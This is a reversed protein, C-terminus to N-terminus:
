SGGGSSRGFVRALHLAQGTLPAEAPRPSPTEAFPAGKPKASPAKGAPAPAAPPASASGAAAAGDTPATRFIARAERATQDFWEKLYEPTRYREPAQQYLRQETELAVQRLLQPKVSKLDPYQTFFAAELAQLQMQQQQQEVIADLAPQVYLTRAEQDDRLAAAIARIFREPNAQPDDLGLRAAEERIAQHAAPLSWAVPRPPPAAPPASPRGEMSALLLRELRQAAQDARSKDGQLRQYAEALQEPTEYGAWQKPPPAEPPAPVPEPKPEPTPEPKPPAPEPAPTPERAGSQAVVAAMRTFQDASVASPAEPAPPPSPEPATPRTEDAM